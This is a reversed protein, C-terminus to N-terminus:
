ITYHHPLQYKLTIEFSAGKENNYAKIEGNLSDEIIMKSMYLGIGTGKKDLRTTFYPEFIRGIIDEKIGGANDSIVIKVLNKEEDKIISIDIHGKFDRSEELRDLIVDKANNLINLIVQKFEGLYNHLMVKDKRHIDISIRNENLSSNLINIVKLIEDKIYFSTETKDTKFFNGFDTITKSMFEIKEMAKDMTNEFYEDDLEDYERAEEMDQLLIAVTNLPQRWQHAISNIMEGMLAMKNNQALIREQELRKQIEKEIRIELSKNLDKLQNEIEERQALMNNLPKSLEKFENFTLKDRDIKIHTTSAGKFFSILTLINENIHNTILKSLFYIVVTMIIFIAILLYIDNLINKMLLSKKEKIILNVDDIYLGSGVIWNWEKFAKSYGIKESLEEQNLKKFVYKFFGGDPKLANIKQLDFLNQGNKDIFKKISFPKVIKGDFVRSYGDLTNVFVYGNKGYRVNSIYKLTKAKLDKELDDLYEGMGIHWDFPEFLKIFSLKPFERNKIDPKVFYNLTFGERQEKAVKSQRQIIFDGRKDKLNWIDIDKNLKSQTKFLIAKGSNSNIFFYARKNSFHLNKLATVILYKIEKDTKSNKNENYIALATEYALNVREKLKAKFNKQLNKQERKIYNIVSVVESKIRDQQNEIFSNRVLKIDEQFAEYQNLLFFASIILSVGFSLMFINKFLISKLSQM